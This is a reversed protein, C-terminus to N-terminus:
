CLGTLSCAPRSATCNSKGIKVYVVLAHVRSSSEPFVLNQEEEKGAEDERHRLLVQFGVRSSNGSMQSLFPASSLLTAANPQLSKSTSGKLGTCAVTCSYALTPAQCGKACGTGTNTGPLGKCMRAAVEKEVGHQHTPPPRQCYLRQETRTWSAGKKM